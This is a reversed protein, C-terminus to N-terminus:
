VLPEPEDATFNVVMKSPDVEIGDGGLVLVEGLGQIMQDTDLGRLCEEIVFDIFQGPGAVSGGMKALVESHTQGFARAIAHMENPEILGSGDVDLKCYSKYLSNTIFEEFADPTIWGYYVDSNNSNIMRLLGENTATTWGQSIVDGLAALERPEIVGDQNSDLRDFLFRIKSKTSVPPPPAVVQRRILPRMTANAVRSEASHDYEDRAPPDPPPPPVNYGFGPGNMHHFPMQHWPGPGYGGGFPHGFAPTRWHSM